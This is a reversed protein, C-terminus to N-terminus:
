VCSVFGCECGRFSRWVAEDSEVTWDKGRNGEEPGDREWDFEDPIPSTGFVAETMGTEILGPCIANVRVRTGSLQWSGTQVLSIVAAKSASYDPGGAGSRLGAVSATVIISGGADKKESCIVQMAPSAHKIALFASLTNVRLTEMFEEPTIDPIFFNGIRAANAFFIDLRKYTNIVDRYCDFRLGLVCEYKVLQKVAKEDAADFKRFIIDTNSYLKTLDSKHQALNSDDFDCIYIAKACSQAYKHATAIGIGLISNCGTIIAVKGLLTNHLHSKDQSPDLHKQIIGLRKDPNHPPM